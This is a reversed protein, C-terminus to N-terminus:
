WTLPLQGRSKEAIQSLIQMQSLMIGSNLGRDVEWVSPAETLPYSSQFTWESM